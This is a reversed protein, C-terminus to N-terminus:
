NTEEYSTADLEVLDDDNDPTQDTLIDIMLKKQREMEALDEPQIQGGLEKAFIRMRVHAKIFQLAEPIDCYDSDSSLTNANRLYWITIATAHTELAAPYLTLKYDATASDHRILYKYRQFNSGYQTIIAAEEFKKWDRIRPIPYIISGNSYMLGRVKQAYITAPLPYQSTGQTIALSASTLFYDQNIALIEKEAEDIADNIYQNIESDDIFDEDQTDTEVQIQSRLQALTYRTAM